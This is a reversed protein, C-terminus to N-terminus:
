YSSGCDFVRFVVFCLPVPLLRSEFMSFML